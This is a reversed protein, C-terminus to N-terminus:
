VLRGCRWAIFVIFFYVFIEGLALVIMPPIMDVPQEQLPRALLLFLGSYVLWIALGALAGLAWRARPLQPRARKRQVKEPSPEVVPKGDFQWEKMM